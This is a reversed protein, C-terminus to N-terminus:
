FSSFGKSEQCSLSNCSGWEMTTINTYCWSQGGNDVNICTSYKKGNFEFPVDCFENQATKCASAKNSHENSLFFSFTAIRLQNIYRSFYSDAVFQSYSLIFIVRKM